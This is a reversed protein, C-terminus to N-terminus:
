IYTKNDNLKLISAMNKINALEELGIDLAIALTELTSMVLLYKTNILVSSPVSKVLRVMESYTTM